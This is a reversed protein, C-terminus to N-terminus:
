KDNTTRRYLVVPRENVAVCGDLVLLYYMVDTLYDIVFTETLETIICMAYPQIQLIPIPPTVVRVTVFVITSERPCSQVAMAPLRNRHM